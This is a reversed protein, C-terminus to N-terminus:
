GQLTHCKKIVARFLAEALPGGHKVIEVMWTETRRTGFEEKGFCEEMHLTLPDNPESTNGYIERALKVRAEIPILALDHLKEVVVNMVDKLNYRDAMCYLRALKEGERIQFNVDEIISASEWKGAYLWQLMYCFSASSDDPLVIERTRGERFPGECMAKFVTSKSLIEQHATFVLKGAGVIVTFIPSQFQTTPRIRKPETSGSPKKASSRGNGLGTGEDEAQTNDSDKSKQLLM